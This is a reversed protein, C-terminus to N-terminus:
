NSNNILNRWQAISRMAETSIVTFHISRMAGTSIVAFLHSRRVSRSIYKAFGCALSNLYAPLLCIYFQLFVCKVVLV